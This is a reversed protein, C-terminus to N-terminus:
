RCGRGGWRSWCGSRGGRSRAPCSPPPTPPANYGGRQGLLLEAVAFLAGHASQLETDGVRRGCISRRTAPSYPAKQGYFLPSKSCSQRHAIRVQCHILCCCPRRRRRPPIPPAGCDDTLIVVIQIMVMMMTIIIIERGASSSAKTVKM